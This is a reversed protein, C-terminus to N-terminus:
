SGGPGKYTKWDAKITKWEKATVGDRSKILRTEDYPQGIEECKEKIAQVCAAESQYQMFRFASFGEVEGNQHRYAYNTRIM